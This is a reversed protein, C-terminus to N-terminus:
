ITVSELYRIEREYEVWTDMDRLISDTQVPVTQVEAAHARLIDRMTADEGLALIERRYRAALMIPHGRQGGFEPVLIGASSTRYAAILGRVVGAELQPQDGLVHMVGEAHPNVAAWGHQISSLMGEAYRPNVTTRVDWKSLINAIEEQRHGLVVVIEGVSSSALVSVVQEIVAHNGFPLLQKLAGMRSSLGAALVIASIM